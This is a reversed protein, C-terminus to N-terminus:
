DLSKLEVEMAYCIVKDGQDSEPVEVPKDEWRPSNTPSLLPTPSKSQGERQEEHATSTADGGEIPTDLACMTFAPEARGDGGALHGLDLRAELQGAEQSSPVVSGLTTDMTASGVFDTDEEEM